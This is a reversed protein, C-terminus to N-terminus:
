FVVDIFWTTNTAGQGTTFSVVDQEFVFDVYDDAVVKKINQCGPIIIYELIEADKLSVRITNEIGSVRKFSPKGEQVDFALRVLSDSHWHCRWSNVTPTKACGAILMYCFLLISLAKM